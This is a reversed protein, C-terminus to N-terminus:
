RVQQHESLYYHTNLLSIAFQGSSRVATTNSYHTWPQCVCLYRANSLQAFHGSILAYGSSISEVTEAEVYAGENM